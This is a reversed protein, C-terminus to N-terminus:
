IEKPRNSMLMDFSLFCLWAATLGIAGLAFSIGLLDRWLMSLYAPLRVYLGYFLGGISAAGLTSLAFFVACRLASRNSVQARLALVADLHRGNITQSATVQM